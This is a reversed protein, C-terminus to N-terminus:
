RQPGEDTQRLSRNYGLAVVRGAIQCAVFVVGFNFVTSTPIGVYFFFNNYPVDNDGVMVFALLEGPWLLFEVQDLFYGYSYYCYAAGLTAVFVISAATLSIANILRATIPRLTPDTLPAHFPNVDDELVISRTLPNENLTAYVHPHDDRCNKKSVKSTKKTTM